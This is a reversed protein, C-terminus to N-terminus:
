GWEQEPAFGRTNCYTLNQTFHSPPPFHHHFHALNLDPDPDPYKSFIISGSRAFNHPDNPDPDGVSTWLLLPRSVICLLFVSAIPSLVFGSIRSFKKPSQARVLSIRHQKFFVCLSTFQITPTIIGASNRPFEEYFLPHFDQSM